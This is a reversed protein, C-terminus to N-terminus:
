GVKCGPSHATPGGLDNTGIRACLGCAMPLPQGRNDLGFVAPDQFEAHVTDRYRDWHVRSSEWRMGQPIGTGSEFMPEGSSRRYYVESGVQWAETRPFGACVAILTASM